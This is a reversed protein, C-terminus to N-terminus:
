SPAKMRNLAFIEGQGQRLAEQLRPKNASIVGPSIDSVKSRPLSATPVSGGVIEIPRRQRRSARKGIQNLRSIRRHRAGDPVARGDQDTTERGGMVDASSGSFSSPLRGGTPNRVQESVGEVHSM